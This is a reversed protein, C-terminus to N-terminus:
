SLIKTMFEHIKADLIGQSCTNLKNALIFFGNVEGNVFM